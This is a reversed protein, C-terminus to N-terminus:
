FRLLFETKEEPTMEVFVVMLIQMTNYEQGSYIQPHYGREIAWVVKTDQMLMAKVLAEESFGSQLETNCYRRALEVKVRGNPSQNHQSM